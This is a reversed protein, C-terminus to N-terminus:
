DRNFRLKSVSYYSSLFTAGSSSSGSDKYWQQGEESLQFTPYPPWIEYIDFLNSDGRRSVTWYYDPTHWSIEQKSVLCTHVRNRLFFFISTLSFSVGFFSPHNRGFGVYGCYNYVKPHCQDSLKFNHNELPRTLSQPRVHFLSTLNLYNM